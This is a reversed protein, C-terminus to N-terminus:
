LALHVLKLAPGAQTQITEGTFDQLSSWSTLSSPLLVSSKVSINVGPLDPGTLSQDLIHDRCAESWNPPVPDQEM